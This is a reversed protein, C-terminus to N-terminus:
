NEVINSSSLNIRAADVGFGVFGGLLEIIATADFTDNNENIEIDDNAVYTSANVVNPMTDNSALDAIKNFINNTTANNVM